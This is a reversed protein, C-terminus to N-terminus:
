PCSKHGGLPLGIVAWEPHSRGLAFDAGVPSKELVPHQNGGLVSGPNLSIEVSFQGM